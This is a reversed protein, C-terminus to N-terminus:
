SAGVGELHPGILSWRRQFHAVTTRVGETLARSSITAGTVAYIPRSRERQLLGLNRERWQPGPTRELQLLAGRWDEPMPDRTVELSALGGAPRGMFQDEFVRTAVEAGLGPDEEHEVVRVGAIEFAPSLAVLFRIRNKYGRTVGEVVFGATRNAARAVFLRGLPVLAKRARPDVAAMAPVPVGDLTFAILRPTATEEGLPRAEYLVMASGPRGPDGRDLSQRIETVGAGAGLGLLETIAGRESALQAVRQYRETGVYVAGLIAAGMACVLTVSRTIRLVEDRPRM